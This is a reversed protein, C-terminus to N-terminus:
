WERIFCNSREPGVPCEQYGSASLKTYFFAHVNMWNDMILSMYSNIVQIIVVHEPGQDRKSTIGAKVHLPQRDCNVAILQIPQHAAKVPLLQHDSNVPLPQDAKM